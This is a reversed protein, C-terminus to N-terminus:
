KWLLGIAELFAELKDEPVIMITGRDIPRRKYKFDNMRYVRTRYVIKPNSLKKRRPLFNVVNNDM